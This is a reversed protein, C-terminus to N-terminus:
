DEAIDKEEIEPFKTPHNADLVTTFDKFSGDIAATTTNPKEDIPERLIEIGTTTMNKQDRDISLLDALPDIIAESNDSVDEETSNDSELITSNMQLSRVENSTPNMTGNSSQHFEFEGDKGDDTETIGIQSVSDKEVNFMQEKSGGDTATSEFSRLVASSVDDGKYNRERADQTSAEYNKGANLWEGDNHVESHNRKIEGEFEEDGEDDIEIEDDQDSEDIRDEGKGATEDEDEHDLLRETEWNEDPKTEVEVEDTYENGNNDGIMKINEKSDDTAGHPLDKRGFRVLSHNSDVVTSIKVIGEEMANEKEHSHKVQYLFWVCIAVLVCVQVVHKVKFGKTRVNRGSSSQKYM